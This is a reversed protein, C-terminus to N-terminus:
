EWAVIYYACRLPTAYRMVPYRDWLYVFPVGSLAWRRALALHERNGTLEYARTYAWVLRASALLDPTHLPIEWIQSGRPTRFRKAYDLTKLAAELSVRDGTYRAHELLPVALDACL